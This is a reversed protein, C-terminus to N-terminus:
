RDVWVVGDVLGVGVMVWVGMGCGVEGDGLGVKKRRTGWIGCRVICGDGSWM